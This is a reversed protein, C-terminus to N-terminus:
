VVSKPDRCHIPAVTLVITSAPNIMANPATTSSAIMSTSFM